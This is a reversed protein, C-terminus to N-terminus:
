PDHGVSVINHPEREKLSHGAQIHPDGIMTMHNPYTQHTKENRAECMGHKVCMTKTNSAGAGCSCFVWDSRVFM